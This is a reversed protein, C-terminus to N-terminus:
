KISIWHRSQHNTTKLTMPFSVSLRKTISFASHWYYIPIFILDGPSMIVDLIPKEDINNRARTKESKEGEHKGWVKFHTQGDIQVILNHSFDYHIGFGKSPIDEVSFYIHADTSYSTLTELKESLQNVKLNVRSCDSLYCVYNRIESEILDPPYSNIDSLWDSGEWEYTKESIINFRHNNVFPRLNLLSELESWSFLDQIANKQYFPKFELIQNSIEQSLM